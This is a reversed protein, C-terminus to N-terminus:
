DVWVYGQAPIDGKREADTIDKAEIILVSPKKLYEDLTMYGRSYGKTDPEELYRFMSNLERRRSMSAANWVSRDAITGDELVYGSACGREYGTIQTLDKGESVSYDNGCCTCTVRDPNHGFRNYFVIKAEEEGAEIYINEYPAEKTGGGSHMDMFSTWM